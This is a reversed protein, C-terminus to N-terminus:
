KIASTDLKISDTLPIELKISTDVCPTTTSGNVATNTTQNSNCATLSVTILFLLKKM